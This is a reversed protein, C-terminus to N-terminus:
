AQIMALYAAQARRRNQANAPSRYAEKFARKMAEREPSPSLHVKASDFIHKVNEENHIFPVFQTGYLKNLEQICWNFDTTVQKFEGVVFKKRYPLIREYFRAYYATWYQIYTEQQKSDFDKVKKLQTKKLQIALALLSPVAQDPNRIVVLTPLGWKLGTLIQTPSHLHTAIKRERNRDNSDRFAKVAFSNACRPFGEIVIMSDRAIIKSYFNTGRLRLRMIALYVTPLLALAESCHRIFLRKDMLM